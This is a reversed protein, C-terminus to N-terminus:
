RPFANDWNYLKLPQPLLLVNIVLSLCRHNIILLHSENTYHWQSFFTPLLGYAVPVYLTMLNQDGCNMLSIHPNLSSHWLYNFYHFVPGMLFPQTILALFPRPVCMQTSM